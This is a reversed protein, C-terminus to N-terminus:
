SYLLNFQATQICDQASGRSRHACVKFCYSGSMAMSGNTLRGAWLLRRPTIRSFGGTAQLRHVDIPWSDSDNSVDDGSCTNLFADIDPSIMAVQVNITPYLVDSSTSNDADSGSSEPGGPLHFTADLAAPALTNEVDDSQSYTASALFTSNWTPPFISVDAIRCGIAGYPLSLVRDSDRSDKIKVYGSYLPCTKEDAMAAMNFKAQITASDGPALHVSSQSLEVTAGETNHVGALFEQSAQQSGPNAAFPVIVRDPGLTQVTAASVSSMDYSASEKGVNSITFTVDQYAETDNFNLFSVSMKTQSEVAAVVNVLGGGQQWVPALLNDINKTGDSFSVPTATHILARVVDEAPWSPYVSRLLAICGAIYPASVSTGSHTGYGGVSRPQASWVNGGPGLVSPFLSLDGTPGWSGPTYMSGPNPNPRTRVEPLLTFNSDMELTMHDAEAFIKALKEGTEALLSGTGQIGKYSNGYLYLDFPDTTHNDYVVAHAAGRAVIYAMKQEYSCGGRRMLVIRGKLSDPAATDNGCADNEISTDPSLVALPLSEPYKSPFAPQWEFEFSQEEGGKSYIARAKPNSRVLHASNVSGAAVAGTAGAPSMTGFPGAWGANGASIVFLTKSEDSIRRMVDSVLEHPFPGNGTGFSMSIIDTGRSQALLLAEILVSDSFRGSDVCGSVRYHDLTAGPAVGVFGVSQQEGVILASTHTGHIQCDVYPDDDPHPTNAGTFDDGVMDSGHRLPSTDRHYINSANAVFAPHLTDLGTDLIAISIGQGVMGRSHLINVGTLEHLADLQPPITSNEEDRKYEQTTFKDASVHLPSPLRSSFRRSLENNAAAAAESREALGDLSESSTSGLDWFRIFQPFESKLMEALDQLCSTPKLQGQYELVLGRFINSQELFRHKVVLPTSADFYQRSVNDLIATFTEIDSSLQLESVLLHSQVGVVIWAAICVGFYTAWKPSLM